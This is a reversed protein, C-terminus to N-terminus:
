IGLVMLGDAIQQQIDNQWTPKQQEIVAQLLPQVPLQYGECDAMVPPAQVNILANVKLPTKAFDVRLVIQAPATFSARCTANIQMLVMDKNINGALATTLPFAITITDADSTLKAPGAKTIKISRKGGLWPVDKEEFLVKPVYTDLVRGLLRAAATDEPAIVRKTLATSTPQLTKPTAAQAPTPVAVDAAASGSLAVAAQLLVLALAKASNAKVTKSALVACWM